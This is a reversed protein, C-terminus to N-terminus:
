SRRDGRVSCLAGVLLAVACCVCDERRYSLRAKHTYTSSCYLYQVTLNPVHKQKVVTRNHNASGPAGGTPREARVQVVAFTHTPPESDIYIKDRDPVFFNIKYPPSYQPTIRNCLYSLM